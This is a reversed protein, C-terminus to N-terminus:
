PQEEGSSLLDPSLEPGATRTGGFASLHNLVCRCHDSVTKHTVLAVIFILGQELYSLAKGHIKGQRYWCLATGM